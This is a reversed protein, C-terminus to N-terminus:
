ETECRSPSIVRGDLKQKQSLLASTVSFCILIHILSNDEGLGKHRCIMYVVAQHSNYIVIQLAISSVKQVRITHDKFNKM